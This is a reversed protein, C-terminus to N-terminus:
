LGKEEIIHVVAQLSAPLKWELRINKWGLRLTKWGLRMNEWGLSINEWWITINGMRTKYIEM